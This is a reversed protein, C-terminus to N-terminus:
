KLRRYPIKLIIFFFLMTVYSYYGLLSEMMGYAFLSMLLPVFAVVDKSSLLQVNKNVFRSLAYYIIINTSLLIYLYSNDFPEETSFNVGVFLASFSYLDLFPKLYTGRGIILDLLLFIGQSAYKAFLFSFVLLFIPMFGTVNKVFNRMIGNKKFLVLFLWCVTQVFTAVIVTRCGCVNYIYFSYPIGFMNALFSHDSLTLLVSLFLYISFLFSGMRNPNNFCYINVTEGTKIIKYDPPMIGIKSLLLILGLTLLVYFLNVQVFRFLDIRMLLLLTVLVLLCHLAHQNVVCLFCSLVILLAYIVVQRSFTSINILLFLFSFALIIVRIAWYVVFANMTTFMFSLCVLHLCFTEISKSYYRIRANGLM